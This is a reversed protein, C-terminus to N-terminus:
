RPFFPTAHTRRNPPRHAKNPAATARMTGSVRVSFSILRIKFSNFAMFLASVSRHPEPAKCFNNQKTSTGLMITKTHWMRSTTQELRQMWVIRCAMKQWSACHTIGPIPRKPKSSDPRFPRLQHSNSTISYRIASNLHQLSNQHAISYAFLYLERYFGTSLRHGGYSRPHLIRVAILVFLQAHTELIKSAPYKTICQKGIKSV